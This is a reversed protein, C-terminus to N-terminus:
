KILDFLQSYDNANLLYNLCIITNLVFRLIVITKSSTKVPIFFDTIFKNGYFKPIYFGIYFNCCKLYIISLFRSLVVFATM